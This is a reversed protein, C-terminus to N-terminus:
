TSAVNGPQQSIKAAQVAFEAPSFVLAVTCLGRFILSITQIVERM